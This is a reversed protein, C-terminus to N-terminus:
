EASELCRVDYLHKAEEIFGELEKPIGMGIDLAFRVMFAADNERIQAKFEEVAEPYTVCESADTSKKALEEAFIKLKPTVKM